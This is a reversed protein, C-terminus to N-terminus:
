GNPPEGADGPIPYEAMDRIKDDDLRLVQHRHRDTEADVARCLFRM